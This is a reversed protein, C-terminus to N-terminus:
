GMQVGGELLCNICQDDLLPRDKIPTTDKVGNHIIFTNNVGVISMRNRNLLDHIAGLLDRNHMFRHRSELFTAM